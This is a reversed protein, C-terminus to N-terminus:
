IKEYRKGPLARIHGKLELEMMEMALEGISLGTATLLAAHDLTAASDFVSLILRENPNLDSDDSEVAPMPEHATIHWGLDDIIDTATLILRAKGSRILNNTGFSSGDTIRGPVAMVTRGYSDAMEATALSGGTAPSEVIVIGSSMGAIIRNRAIFLNGNQKTRSHLESVIAGGSRIIDEALARHPTPTIEPLVSAVVAVTTAGHTLAARHCASDVGYALGSVICLDDVAAALDGILKDTVHLGSPSIERTGVMSLTRMSLAEVNGRVFLVHPRDSAERLPAPYEADTTAIIRIDHKRCYEVEGRAEHMGEGALIREALEPRLKADDILAARSAAYVEEASGFHDVLHAAGRSGIGRVFLLALDELTM